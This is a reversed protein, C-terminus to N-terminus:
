AARAFEGHYKRAANAYAFAALRATEFVGLCISKGHVSIRARYGNGKKGVGKFRTSSNRYVRRNWQNQSFTALRLNEKRNDLPNLNIHDVEVGRRARLIQRHMLITYPKRSGSRREIRGARGQKTCHWCFCNLCDFDDDDVIAFKGRTLPILKM